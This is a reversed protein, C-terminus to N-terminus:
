REQGSQCMDKWALVTTKQRPGAQRGVNGRAHGQTPLVVPEGSGEQGQEEQQRQGARAHVSTLASLDPSALGQPV